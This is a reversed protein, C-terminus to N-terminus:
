INRESGAESNVYKTHYTLSKTKQALQTAQCIDIMALSSVLVMWQMRRWWSCSRTSWTPYCFYRDTAETFIVLTYPTPAATSYLSFNRNQLTCEVEEETCGELFVDVSSIQEYGKMIFPLITKRSFVDSIQGTRLGGQAPGNTITYQGVCPDFIWFFVTSINRMSCLFELTTLNSSAVLVM